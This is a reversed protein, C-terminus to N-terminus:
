PRSRRVTRGPAAARPLPPVRAAYRRYDQYWRAAAAGLEPRCFERYGWTVLRESYEAALELKQRLRGIPVPRWPADQVTGHHVRGYRRLYEQPSPCLFEATEVNGWLRAGGERCAAQMAAFFPRRQERTVYSFHEGSDQLMIVDFGSRRILRAWYDRYEGPENYRFDGFIGERDLIFFPSLTVPLDAAQRCREVLAPYLAQIYRDGEEWCMYIEHPLYWAFFAPHGRFREGLRRIFGGCLEIEAQLDLHSYWRGSSGVDLIVQVRRRACLNLLMGLPDAEHDLAAPANTLWLLDFGLVRQQELEREWGATGWRAAQHADFWWLPGYIVPRCRGPGGVAPLRGALLAATAGLLQQLAQRRNM